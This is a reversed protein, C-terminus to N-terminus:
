DIATEAFYKYSCDSKLWDLFYNAIFTFEKCGYINNAFNVTSQTITTLLDKYIEM